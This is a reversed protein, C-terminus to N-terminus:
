STPGGHVVKAESLLNVHFADAQAEMGDLADLMEKPMMENHLTMNFILNFM